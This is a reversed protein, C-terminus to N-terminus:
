ENYDPSTDVNEEILQDMDERISSPYGDKEDAMDTGEQIKDTVSNLVDMEELKKRTESLGKVNEASEVVGEEIDKPIFGDIWGSTVELYMQTKSTQFWEAKQDKDALYYVPLYFLGLLLVGRLFGFILGLTRDLIGLGINRVFEAIFHSIVSLIILFIIFISGYTVADAVVSYPVLGLFMKPEGDEVVGMWGYTSELLLPGGIYSAIAGGVVGFITLVERVFGRLFAIIMSGLIVVLVLIDVLM